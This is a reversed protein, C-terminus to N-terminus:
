ESVGKPYGGKGPIVGSFNAPKVFLPSHFGHKCTPNNHLIQPNNQTQHKNLRRIHLEHKITYVAMTVIADSFTPTTDINTETITANGAKSGPYSSNM